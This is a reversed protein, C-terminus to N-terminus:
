KKKFRFTMYAGVPLGSIIVWAKVHLNDGTNPSPYGANDDPIDESVSNKESDTLVDQGSGSLGSLSVIGLTHKGVSLNEVFEPPLTVIISGEKVTFEKDKILEKGDLEVRISDALVADLRFSAANSDLFCNNCKHCFYYETNGENTATAAQAEVCELQHALRIRLM